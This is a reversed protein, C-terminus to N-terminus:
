AALAPEAGRPIIRMGALEGSHMLSALAFGTEPVDLHPVSGPQRLEVPAAGAPRDISLTYRAEEGEAAPVVELNATALLFSFKGDRISPRLTPLEYTRGGLGVYLRSTAATCAFLAALLRGKRLTLEVAGGRLDVTEASLASNRYTTKPLGDWATGCAVVRADWYNAPNAPPPLAMARPPQDMAERVGAAVLEAILHTIVPRAYHASDLYFGTVEPYSRGFRRTFDRHTDVQVLDYWSTLYGIAAPLLPVTGRHAGHQNYLIASVIRIAPNVTLAYRIIGEYARTWSELGARDDGYLSVDNVAYEVVLLDADKLQACSKLRMLGTLSSTNGVALNALVQLEVGLARACRPLDAVYAAGLLTNSGGIIVARAKRPPAPQM